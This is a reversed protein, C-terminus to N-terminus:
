WLQPVSSSIGFIASNKVLSDHSKFLIQDIVIKSKTPIAWTFVGNQEANSASDFPIYYSINSHHNAQKGAEDIYPHRKITNELVNRITISMAVTSIQAPRSFIQSKLNEVISFVIPVDFRLFM